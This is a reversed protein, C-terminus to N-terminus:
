GATYGQKREGNKWRWVVSYLLFGVLLFTTAGMLACISRGETLLFIAVGLVGSNLTQLMAGRLFHISGFGLLRPGSTKAELTLCTALQPVETRLYTRIDKIALFYRHANRSEYAYSVYAFFGVLALLLLLWGSFAAGAALLGGESAAATEKVSGGASKSVALGVLVGSPLGVAKLYNAFMREREDLTIKYYSWLSRYEELLIDKESQDM